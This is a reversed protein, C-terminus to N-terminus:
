KEDFVVCDHKMMHETALELVRAPCSGTALFRKLPKSRAITRLPTTDLFYSFIASFVM